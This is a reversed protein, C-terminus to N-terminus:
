TNYIYAVGYLGTFRLVLNQLVIVKTMCMELNSVAPAGYLQSVATTSKMCIATSKCPLNICAM